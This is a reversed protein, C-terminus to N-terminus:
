WEPQGSSVQLASAPSPYYLHGYHKLLHARAAVPSYEEARWPRLDGDDYTAPLTALGVEGRWFPAKMADIAAKRAAHWKDDRERDLPCTEFADEPINLDDVELESVALGPPAVTGHSDNRDGSDARAALTKLSEAIELQSPDPVPAVIHVPAHCSSFEETTGTSSKGPLM